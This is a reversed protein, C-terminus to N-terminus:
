FVTVTRTVLRSLIQSKLFNPFNLLIGSISPNSSLYVGTWVFALNQHKGTLFQLFDATVYNMSFSIKSLKTFKDGIRQGLDDSLVSKKNRAGDLGTSKVNESSKLIQFTEFTEEFQYKPCSLQLIVQIYREFISNQM